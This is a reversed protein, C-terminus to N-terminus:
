RVVRPDTRVAQVVQGETKQTDAWERGLRNNSRDRASEQPSNDSGIEHAESVQEAFATGFTRTLWYSWLVHRTSDENYAADATALRRSSREAYEKIRLLVPAKLPHTALLDRETPTLPRDYRLSLTDLDNRNIRLQTMGDRRVTELRISMLVDHLKFHLRASLDLRRSTIGDRILEHLFAVEKRVSSRLTDALTVGPLVLSGADIKELPVDFEDSGFPVDEPADLKMGADVRIGGLTLDLRLPFLGVVDASARAVRIRLPPPKPLRATPPPTAEIALGIWRATAVPVLETRDFEVRRLTGEGGSIAGLLSPLASATARALLWDGALYIGVLLIVSGGATITLFRFLSRRM